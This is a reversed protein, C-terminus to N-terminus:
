EVMGKAKRAKAQAKEAAMVTIPAPTSFLRLLITLVATVITIGQSVESTIMPLDIILELAALTGSIASVWMIKSMYKPKQVM